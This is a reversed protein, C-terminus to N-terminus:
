DLHSRHPNKFAVILCALVILTGAIWEIYPKQETKFSIGPERFPAPKEEQALAPATLLALGIIGVVGLRFFRFPRRRMM